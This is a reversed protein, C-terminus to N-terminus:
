SGSLSNDGNSKDEDIQQMVVHGVMQHTEVAGTEKRTITLTFTIEPPTTPKLDIM